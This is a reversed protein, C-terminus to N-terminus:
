PPHRTQGWERREGPRVVGFVGGAGAGTEAEKDMFKGARFRRSFGNGREGAVCGGVRAGSGDLGRAVGGEGVRDAM